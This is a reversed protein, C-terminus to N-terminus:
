ARRERRGHRGARLRDERPRGQPVATAAQRLSLHPRFVLSGMPSQGAGPGVDARSFELPSERGCAARHRADPHIGHLAPGCRVGASFHRIAPRGDLPRGGPDPHQVRRQRAAFEAGRGTRAHVRIPSEPRRGRGRDDGLRHGGRRRARRDAPPTQRGYGTETRRRRGPRHGMESQLTRGRVRRDERERAVPGRPGGQGGPGSHRRGAGNGGGAVGARGGRDDIGHSDHVCGGFVVPFDGVLMVVSAFRQLRDARGCTFHTCPM